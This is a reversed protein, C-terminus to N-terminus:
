EAFGMCNGVTQGWQGYLWGRSYRNAAYGREAASIIQGASLKTPDAVYYSGTGWPMTMQLVNFHSGNSAGSYGGSEGTTGDTRAGPYGAICRWLALHSARAAERARAAIKVRTEALEKMTWRWASAHFCTEHPARVGIAKCRTMPPTLDLLGRFVLTHNRRQKLWFRVARHHFNISRQQFQALETLTMQKFPKHHLQRESKAFVTPALTLAAIAVLVPAWRTMPRPNV